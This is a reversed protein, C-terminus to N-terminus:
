LLPCHMLTAMALESGVFAPIEELNAGHVEMWPMLGAVQLDGSKTHAVQGSPRVLLVPSFNSAWNVATGLSVVM